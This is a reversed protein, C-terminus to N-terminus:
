RIQAGALAGGLRDLATIAKASEAGVLDSLLALTAESVGSARAAAFWAAQGGGEPAALAAFWRRNFDDLSSGRKRLERDIALAVIPGCAYHLEFDGRATATALPGKALGVRCAKQAEALRKDVYASMGQARLALAAMADAGGEHMWAQANDGVRDGSRDRQVMHAVEHAFVWDLWGPEQQALRDRAKAGDFHMFVQRPLTGGQTSEQGDGRGRADLSVFLQPRFSLAGYRGAFWAIAAPLSRELQARLETPLGPDLIASMGGATEPTRTGIYIQSGEGSSVHTLQGAGVADGARITRNPAAIRMTVPGEGSCPLATCAHYHGTYVLLGGDSFPSFPAYSVILPRYRQALEIRVASFPADDIRELRDTAADGAWRFGADAFRWDERRWPGLAPTFHLARVPQATEFRLQAPGDAPSVLELAVAAGGATPGEVTACGGLSYLALGAALARLIM